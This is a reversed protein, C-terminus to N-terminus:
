DYVVTIDGPTGGSTVVVLGTQFEVGFELTTEVTLNVTAITPGSGATNDYIVLTNSANFTNIIIRHLKGPSLKLVTTANTTINSFVPQTALSGIRLISSAFVELTGSTTGSGSNVSEAACHLNFDNTLKATTAAVRHILVNDIIFWVMDEYYLIEYAHADTDMTFESADGNFSGSEISTVGSGTTKYNVSLVGEGDLSFYFGNDLTWPSGATVDIAGWRRTCGAVTVDTVRSVARFENPNVFLFRAHRKSFLSGSGNNATGSTLTVLGNALAAASSAGNNALTWFNADIASGIFQPGVLRHTVDVALAGNGPNIRNQRGTQPDSISTRINGQPDIEGIDGDDDTARRAKSFRGM